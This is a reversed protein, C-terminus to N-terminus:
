AAQAQRGGRARLDEHLRQCALRDRQVHLRAVRNLVHLLLNLVLLADRRVLLAKDEGSLLELISASQPLGANSNFHQM